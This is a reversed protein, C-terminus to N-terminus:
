MSSSIYGSAMCCYTDGRGEKKRYELDDDFDQYDSCTASFKCKM